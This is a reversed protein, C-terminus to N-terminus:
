CGGAQPFFFLIYLFDAFVVVGVVPGILLLTAISFFYIAVLRAYRGTRVQTKRWVWAGPLPTRNLTWIRMGTRLLMVGMLWAMGVACLLEARVWPLSECTPLTAIWKLIPQVWQDFALGAVFLAAIAAIIKARKAATPEIYRPEEVM